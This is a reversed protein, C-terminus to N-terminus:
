LYSKVIRRKGAPSLPIQDVVEISIEIEDGLVPSFEAIISSNLEGVRREPYGPPLVVKVVVKEYTEQVIQYQNVDLNAFVREALYIGPIVRGSRTVITDHMRGKISALLPLGRGCRCTKDSYVGIDGIEYRIFPMAYNHLNTIVIRGEEGPHVPNGKDNLIELVVSEAAIHHGSHERCETAIVHQERSCYFDYTDCSFARRFLDRQYDYLQESNTIIGKPSIEWKKETLVCRALQEIASPYGLIFKPRFRAIKGAIPLMTDAPMKRVDFSLRRQFFISTTQLLREKMSDYPWKIFLTVNKDGLEFGIDSFIRQNLAFSTDIHDSLTTYFTLPQGLTGGTCLKIREKVPFNPALMEEFNSKIIPRTLIPLKVLDQSNQIDQPNLNNEKFLRRYYPVNDYAYQILQGLRRNQLEAIKEHPWWQSEEYERLTKVARTGRLLDLIPALAYRAIRNYM